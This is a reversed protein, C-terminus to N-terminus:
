LVVTLCPQLGHQTGFFATWILVTGVNQCCVSLKQSPRLAFQRPLAQLNIIWAISTFANEASRTLEVIRYRFQFKVHM